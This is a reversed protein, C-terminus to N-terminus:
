GNWTLGGKKPGRWKFSTCMVTKRRDSCHEVACLDCCQWAMLATMDYIAADRQNEVIEICRKVQELEAKAEREKRQALEIVMDKWELEKRLEENEAQLTSLATAADIEPEPGTCDDLEMYDPDRHVCVSRGCDMCFVGNHFGSEWAWEDVNGNENKQWNHKM